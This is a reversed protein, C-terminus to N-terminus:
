PLEPAPALTAFTLPAFARGLRRSTFHDARALPTLQVRASSTLSRSLVAAWLEHGTPDIVRLYAYPGADLREVVQAAFPQREAEPLLHGALPSAKGTSAFTAGGLLLALLLASLLAFRRRNM